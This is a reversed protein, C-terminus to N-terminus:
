KCETVSAIAEATDEDERALQRAYEEDSLMQDSPTSTVIDKKPTLLPNRTEQGLLFVFTQWNGSICVCYIYENRNGRGDWEYLDVSSNKMTPSPRQNESLSLNGMRSELVGSSSSSQETPPAMLQNYFNM